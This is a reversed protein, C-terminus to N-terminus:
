KRNLRYRHLDQLYERRQKQCLSLFYAFLLLQCNRFRTIIGLEFFLTLIKDDGCLCPHCEAWIESERGFACGQAALNVLASIVMVMILFIFLYFFVINFIGMSQSIINDTFFIQDQRRHGERHSQTKQFHQGTM